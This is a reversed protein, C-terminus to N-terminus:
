RRWAAKSAEQAADAASLGIDKLMHEPLAALHRRERAREQWGLMADFAQAFWGFGSRPAAVPSHVLIAM